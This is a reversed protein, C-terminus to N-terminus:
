GVAEPVRSKAFLRDIGAAILPLQDNLSHDGGEIVRVRIDGGPVLGKFRQSLSVPVVEDDSGHFIRIPFNYAGPRELINHRLADAVVAYELEYSRGDYHDTFRRVGDRRWQQMAEEPEDRFYQEFFDFAPAILVAGAITVVSSNALKRAAALSLWAGMSSGLLVVPAGRFQQIVEILAALANSIRFDRFRGESRGHCPLDFNAWSYGRKLAHDLFFRAKTHEVSSRFGHVHIGVVGTEGPYYAGRCRTGDPLYM